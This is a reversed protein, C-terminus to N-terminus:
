SRLAIRQSGFFVEAPTLFGLRKRPRNNLASEVQQLREFGIDCFNMARPFYERLLGNLNENRARQWPTRPDAYYMRVGLASEIRATAAFESGRDCTLTHVRDRLPRLRRVMAETVAEATGDIAWARGVYGSRRENMSVIVGGGRAPRVTDLEWDGFRSLAAVEPPRTHIAHRDGFRLRRELGYRKRRKSGRGQPQHGKRHLHRYITTHSVTREGMRLGRGRIQEPTWRRALGADILALLEDM